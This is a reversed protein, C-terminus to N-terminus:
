GTTVDGKEGAAGQDGTVAAKITAIASGIRGSPSDWYEGGRVDFRLVGLIPDDKGDFFAAGGPNWLRDIADKDHTVAATGRLSLFVNKRVDAVSVHVATDPRAIAMAWDTTRDILVEIRGGDVGAVTLPRSSHEGGIMTMFMIITGGDVLEDLDKTPDTSAM